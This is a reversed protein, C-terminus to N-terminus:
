TSIEQGSSAKAMFIAVSFLGNGCLVARVAILKEDEVVKWVVIQRHEADGESGHGLKLRGAM